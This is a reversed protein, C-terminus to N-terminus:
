NKAPIDPQENGEPSSNPEKSDSKTKAATGAKKATELAAIRKDFKTLHDGVLNKFNELKKNVEALEKKVETLEQVADVANEVHSPKPEPQSGKVMEGSKTDKFHSNPEVGDALAEGAEYRKGGLLCAQACIYRLNAM